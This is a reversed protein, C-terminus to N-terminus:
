VGFHVYPVWHQLRDDEEDDSDDLVIKRPLRSDRQDGDSTTIAGISDEGVPTYVKRTSPSRRRTKAPVRLWRDRLERTAKHLGLCVSEDTMAGDRIGEYTFRAMDVCSEDNVEWLTGIVHRFGALQCASILHISEDYFREDRIEGTGCASLYALFPSRQRLNMELLTAVTLQDSKWDELLLYSHSPDDDDTHGHGAFHFIKCSPLHSIIDQKHRRVRPVIPDFDMSKCVDQLMEVEKAAFNLRPHEPTDQMAVLLAHNPATPTAELARRRRGQIIAKISSSYSSMVRDLVTKTCGEGHLGAAHLPFKSLLGTPIWWIHPWKDHSPPQTFGLTDLIPNTVAEWLWSLVRHSGLGGRQAKEEIEESKLRLLALSQIQHQTILLADCRHNSVNVVVIPGYRAANQMGEESPPILFDEFGPQQRIKLILEDLERDAASHRNMYGQSSTGPNLDAVSLEQSISPQLEDRLQVFKDALDPHSAELDLIETRMEELSAALVGRGQELLNLAVLPSKGAQLAIATADCAFGAIDSLLHQKDSNPLSRSILKPILHVGMAAGECAQQWDSKLLCCRVIDEAAGIRILTPANSQHLAAQHHLIAEEIDNMMGTGSDRDGARTVLGTMRKAQDQDESSADKAQQGIQIAEDIETMNRLNRDQLIIGLYSSVLARDPHDEPSADVARRAFQLAEELDPTAGTKLYSSRLRNGLNHLFYMWDPHDEPTLSVAERTYQISERLDAIAGIRVYKDYLLNGLNNSLRAREPDGPWIGLNNLWVERKRLEASNAHVAERAVKIAEELDAMEKKRKHRDGLVISLSKLMSARILDNEPTAKVAERTIQIAKELDAMAGIRQYRDRFCIGLNQLQSPRGQRYKPTIHLAEQALQIEEDLDALVGLRTYRDSLRARLSLLYMTRYPHHPHHESVISLAKRALQISEELDAMLGSILYRDRLQCGLAELRVARKLSDQPTAEVAERAIQIMM